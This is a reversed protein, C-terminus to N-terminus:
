GAINVQKAEENRQNRKEETLEDWMDKVVTQYSEGRDVRCQIDEALQLKFLERGTNAARLERVCEVIKIADDHSVM